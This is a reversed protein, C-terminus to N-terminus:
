RHAQSPVASRMVALRILSSMLAHIRMNPPRSHKRSSWALSYYHSVIEPTYCRQAPRLCVRQQWLQGNVTRVVKNTVLLYMQLIYYSPGRSLWQLTSARVDKQRVGPGGRILM